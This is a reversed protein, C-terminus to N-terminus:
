VLNPSQKINLLSFFRIVGTRIGLDTLTIVVHLVVSLAVRCGRALRSDAFYILELNWIEKYSCITKKSMIVRNM